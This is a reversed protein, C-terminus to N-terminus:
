KGIMGARVQVAPMADPLYGENRLTAEMSRAQQMQHRLSGWQTEDFVPKLTKEPIEAAQILMVYYDYPGTRQPPKTSELLVQAFKKRQASTLGARRDFMAVTLDVSAQHRFRVREHVDSDYAALQSADLTTRLTKAFISAEGFPDAQATVRLPQLERLVDNLKTRDIPQNVLLRRKVEIRDRLRKLDGRGALRLRAKQADNLTCAQDIQLIKNDLVNEQKRRIDEFSTGVGLAWQNFTRETMVFPPVRPARKVVDDDDDQALANFGPGPTCLFVAAVVLSAAHTSRIM